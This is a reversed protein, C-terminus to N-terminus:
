GAAAHARSRQAADATEEALRRLTRHRQKRLYQRRRRWESSGAAAGAISPAVAGAKPGVGSDSPAPPPAPALTPPGRRVCWLNYPVGQPLTPVVDPPIRSAETPVGTAEEGSRYLAFGADSVLRQLQLASCGQLRLLIEFVEIKMSAIAGAALLAQMGGLVQCEFRHPPLAARTTLGNTLPASARRPVRAHRSHLQATAASFCGEGRSM